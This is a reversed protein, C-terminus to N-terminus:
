SSHHYLSSQGLEQRTSDMVQYAVHSREEAHNCQKKGHTEKWRGDLSELSPLKVVSTVGIPSPLDVWVVAVASRAAGTRALHESKLPLVAAVM